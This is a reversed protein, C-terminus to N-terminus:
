IYVTGRCSARGIKYVLMVYGGGGIESDVYFTDSGQKYKIGGRGLTEVSFGEDSEAFNNRIKKFM